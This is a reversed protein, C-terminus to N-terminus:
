LIFFAPLLNITRGGKEKLEVGRSEDRVHGYTWKLVDTHQKINITCKREM